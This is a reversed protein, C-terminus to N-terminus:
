LLRTKCDLHPHANAETVTGHTAWRTHGIGIKGVLREMDGDTVAAEIKGVGKFIRLSGICYGHGSLRIGQVGPEQTREAIHFVCGRGWHIRNNRM